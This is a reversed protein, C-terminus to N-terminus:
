SQIGNLPLLTQLLGTPLREFHLPLDKERWVALTVTSGGFSTRSILQEAFSMSLLINKLGTVTGGNRGHIRLILTQVPRKGPEVHSVLEPPEMSSMLSKRSNLLDKMTLVSQFCRGIIVFKFTLPFIKLREERLLNWFKEGTTNRIEAFQSEELKLNRVRSVRPKKGCTIMPPSPSPPSGIDVELKPKLLPCVNHNASDPSSKIICDEQLPALKKNDESGCSLCPSTPRYPGIMSPESGFAHPWAETEHSM